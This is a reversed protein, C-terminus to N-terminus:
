LTLIDQACRVFKSASGKGYKTNYLEKWYNGMGILDDADPLRAPFRYYHIRCMAAAYRMNWILQKSNKYDDECYRALPKAVDPRFLIYNEWLDDHTAPEMQWFGLAPGSIQHVYKFQSEVLGTGIVLREAAKSYMDLELLVPKVVYDRLQELDIM